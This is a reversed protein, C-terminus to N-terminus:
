ACRAKEQRETEEEQRIRKLKAAELEAKTVYKKGSEAAVEQKEKKLKERMAKLAEM